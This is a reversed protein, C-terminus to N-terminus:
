ALKEQRRKDMEGFMRSIYRCSGITIELEFNELFLEGGSKRIENM